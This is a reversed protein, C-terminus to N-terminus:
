TRPMVTDSKPMVPVRSLTDAVYVLKGPVHCINFSFIMMCLHFRIICPPMADLDKSSLLSVLSKDITESLIYLSFKECAWTFALVEEWNSGLTERCWLKRSAYAVPKWQQNTLQLLVSGVGHSVYRSINQYCCLHWVLCTSNIWDTVLFPKM